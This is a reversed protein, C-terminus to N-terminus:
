HHGLAFVDMTVSTLTDGTAVEMMAPLRITSSVDASILGGRVDSGSEDVMKIYDASTTHSLDLSTGTKIVPVFLRLKEASVDYKFSYDGTTPDMVQFQTIKARLGLKGKVIPIGGIDYALGSPWGVTALVMYRGGGAGKRDKPNVTYTVDTSVIAM